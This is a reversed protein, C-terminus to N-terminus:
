VPKRMNETGHGATALGGPPILVEEVGARIRWIMGQGGPLARMGAEDLGLLMARMVKLVIGHAILIAPGTLDDLVAQMRAVIDDYREGGPASFTWGIPDSERLPQVEPWRAFIEPDTRGEWDGMAIEMLRPEPRAVAGLPALALAATEAARMLPSTRIDFGAPDEIQDALVAGLARAQARGLDTLRSEMQGQHRREANWASQGHRLLYLEKCM